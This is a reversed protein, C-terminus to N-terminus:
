AANTLIAVYNFEILAKPVNGLSSYRLKTMYVYVCVCLQLKFLTVNVKFM